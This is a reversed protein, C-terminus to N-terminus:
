QKARIASKKGTVARDQHDTGFVKLSLDFSLFFSPYNASLYISVVKCILYRISIESM